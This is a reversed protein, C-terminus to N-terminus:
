DGSHVHHVGEKGTIASRRACVRARACVQANSNRVRTMTAGGAKEQRLSHCCVLMWDPLSYRVAGEVYLRPLALEPGRAFVVM